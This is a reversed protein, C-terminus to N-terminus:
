HEKKIDYPPSESSPTWKLLRKIVTSVCWCGRDSAIVIYPKPGLAVLAVNDQTPPHALEQRPPELCHFVVLLCRM